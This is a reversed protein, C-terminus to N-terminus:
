KKDEGDVYEADIVDGENKAGNEQSGGGASAGGGGGPQGGTARYM